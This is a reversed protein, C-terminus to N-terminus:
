VRGRRKGGLCEDAFFVCADWCLGGWLGSKEFAREYLFGGM